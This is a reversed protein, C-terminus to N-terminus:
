QQNVPKRLVVINFKLGVDIIKVEEPKAPSLFLDVNTYAGPDFTTTVDFDKKKRSATVETYTKSKDGYRLGWELHLIAGRMTATGPNGVQLRIKYGDLYPIASMAQVLFPGQETQVVGYGSGNTEVSTSTSHVTSM